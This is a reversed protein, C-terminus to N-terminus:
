YANSCKRPLSLCCTVACMLDCM